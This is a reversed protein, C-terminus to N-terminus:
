FHRNIHRAVIKNASPTYHVGELNIVSSSEKKFLIPLSDYPEIVKFGIKQLDLILYKWPNAYKERNTFSNSNDM